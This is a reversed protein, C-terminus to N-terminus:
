PLMRRYWRDYEWINAAGVPNSSHVAIEQPYQRSYDSSLIKIIEYGDPSDFGLDHDFSMFTIQEDPSADLVKQLQAWSTVWEIDPYDMKVLLDPERWDDLWIKM